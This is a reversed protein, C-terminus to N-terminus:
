TADILKELLRVNRVSHRKEVYIRACAAYKSRLKPDSILRRVAQYLREESGAAHIGVRERDFVGDPNVHLSVVPVERMWAQIFTNAFGEDLSTNVFVHARALLANVEEQAKLGVYELNPTAEISTMLTDAWQRDSPATMPAGVLVFHVHTLDSLAAALRVFADPQKWRKLNAIWVVSLPVSKDITEAPLPHFNPIVADAGRGYNKKLLAAQHETQTVIHTAHRIAYEVSSRELFRTIPNRGYFLSKPTVDGDHAVHWIMRAGNRRAYHAAIGTYGCGVRQYIVDPRIERLARYLPLTHVLYGLRSLRGGIQVIRYDSPKFDPAVRNAVYTVDYRGSPLLEDLICKAQYQSGAMFAEWHVPIVVCLRIRSFTNRQALGTEQLPPFTTPM